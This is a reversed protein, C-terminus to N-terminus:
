NRFLRKIKQRTDNSVFTKIWEIIYHPNEIIENQMKEYGVENLRKYVLDRVSRRVSPVLLNKNRRSIQDFTTKQLYLNGKVAELLRKGKETNVLLASVGDPNNKMDEVSEIGWFDGLTIDSIRKKSTYRCKYCSERYTDGNLFARYYSSLSAIHLVKHAKGRSDKYRYSYTLSWDHKEKTRFNFDYICSHHKKGLSYLYSLYLKRSPVGHCIFDVLYLNDYRQDFYNRVASVQCPTGTYLVPIGLKLKQELPGYIDCINSEVYKSGRLAELDNRETIIKYTVVKEKDYVCGVVAGGQELFYISLVSFMGGSSSLLLSDRDLSWAAYYERVQGNSDVHDAPCINECKGCQVCAISVKPYLFGEQNEIMEICKIPCIAVCSGCGTCREKINEISM